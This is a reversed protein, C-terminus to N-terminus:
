SYESIPPAAAGEGEEEGEDDDGEGEEQYDGEEDEGVADQGQSNM